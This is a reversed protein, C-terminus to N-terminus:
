SWTVSLVGASLSGLKKFAAPSLDINNPGCSPCLDVVKATTSKGSKANKVTITKGCMKGNNYPGPGLAVILQNDNTVKGCAGLGTNFWTAKGSKRKELAHTEQRPEIEVPVAVTSDVPVKAFELDATQIPASFAVLAMVLVLVTTFFSLRFMKVSQIFTVLAVLVTILCVELRGPDLSLLPQFPFFTSLQGLHTGCGM